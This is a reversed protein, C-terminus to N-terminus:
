EEHPYFRAILRDQVAMPNATAGSLSAIVQRRGAEDRFGLAARSAQDIYATPKGEAPQPFLVEGGPLGVAIRGTKTVWTPVNAKTPLGWVDGPIWALSGPQAGTQIVIRHSWAAPDAGSLFYTKKAGAVFLGAAETGDGVYALLDVRKVFGVRSKRPDHLGYRMSPSFIVYNERAVYQRGSGFAVCQGAPMLQLHLTDCRKGKARQVVTLADLTTSVAARLSGGHGDTIYLRTKGDAPPAPIESFAIAGGQPVELTPGPRAGSERGWQDVFAVATQYTGADLSGGSTAIANPAAHPAACGWPRTTLDEMVEGSQVGNSWAVTNHLRAYSLLLGPALGAVLEVTSEDDDLSTLTDATVFLSLGLLEDSWGSHGRTLELVEEYGDRRSPKGQEDLVVNESARFAVRSGDENTPLSLEEGANHTGAPFGQLRVMEKDRVAM